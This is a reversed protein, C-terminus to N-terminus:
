ACPEARPLPFLQDGPGLFRWANPSTWVAAEFPRMKLLRMNGRNLNAKPTRSNHVIATHGLVNNRVEPYRVIKRSGQKEAQGATKPVIFLTYEVAKMKEIKKRRAKRRGAATEKEKQVLVYEYGYVTERKAIFISNTIKYEQEETTAPFRLKYQVVNAGAQKTTYNLRLISSEHVFHFDYLKGQEDLQICLTLGKRGKKRPLIARQRNKKIGSFNVLICNHGEISSLEAFRM